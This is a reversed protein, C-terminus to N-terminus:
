SKFQVAGFSCAKLCMHCLICKEGDFAVTKDGDNIFFAGTPCIGTCAGCHTCADKNWSLREEMDAITVGIKSLYELAANYDEEKGSVELVLYGQKSYDMEAKIINCILHFDQGLRYIIPQDVTESTYYLVWKKETM